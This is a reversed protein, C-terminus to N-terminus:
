GVNASRGNSSIGMRICNDNTFLIQQLIGILKLFTLHDEARGLTMGQLKPFYM